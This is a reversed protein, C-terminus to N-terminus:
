SAYLVVSWVKLPADSKHWSDNGKKAIAAAAVCPSLAAPVSAVLELLLIQCRDENHGVM